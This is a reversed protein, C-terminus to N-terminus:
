IKIDIPEELINVEGRDPSNEGTMVKILTSKGSGNAGTIVIVDGVNATFNIDNLVKNEGYSFDLNKVEIAKM